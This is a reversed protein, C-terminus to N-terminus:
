TEDREILKNDRREYHKEYDEREQPSMDDWHKWHYKNFRQSLPFGQKRPM